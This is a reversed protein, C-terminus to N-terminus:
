DEFQIPRAPFFSLGAASVTWGRDHLEMLIMGQTGRADILPALLAGGSRLSGTIRPPIRETVGHILVADYGSSENGAPLDSYNIIEINSLGLDEWTKKYSEVLGVALEVVYVRAAKHALMAAAYGTATGIVLVRKESDIRLLKSSESLFDLTPVAGNGPLPIFSDTDAFQSLNDPLFLARLEVPNAPNLKRGATEEPSETEGSAEIRGPNEEQAVEKGNEIQVDSATPVNQGYLYPSFYITLLLILVSLLQKKRPNM